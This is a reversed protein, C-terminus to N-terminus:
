EEIPETLVYEETCLNCLLGWANHSWIGVEDPAAFWAANFARILKPNQTNKLEVIYEGLTIQLPQEDIWKKSFTPLYINLIKELNAWNDEITKWYTNKNTLKTM